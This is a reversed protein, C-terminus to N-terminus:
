VLNRIEVEFPENIGATLSFAQRFIECTLLEITECEVLFFNGKFLHMNTFIILMPRCWKLVRYYLVSTNKVDADTM